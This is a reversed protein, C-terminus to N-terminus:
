RKVTKSLTFGKPLESLCASLRVVAAVQRQLEAPATKDIRLTLQRGSPLNFVAYQRDPASKSTFSVTIGGQSATSVVISERTQREMRALKEAKAVETTLYAFAEDIADLGDNVQSIIDLVADLQDFSFDPFEKWGALYSGSAPMVWFTMVRRAFDPMLTIRIHRKMDIVIYKDEEDSFEYRRDIAVCQTRYEQCTMYVTMSPLKDFVYSFAQAATFLPPRPTIGGGEDFCKKLIALFVARAFVYRGTAASSTTAARRVDNFVDDLCVGLFKRVVLAM